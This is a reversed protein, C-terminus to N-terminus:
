KQSWKWVGKWEGDKPPNKELQECRWAWMKFAAGAEIFAQKARTFEGSAYLARAAEFELWKQSYPEKAYIELPQEKGKVAIVDLRKYGDPRGAFNFAKGTILDSVGYYKCLGQVRSATNVADGITTFDVFGGKSGIQCVFVDGTHLGTTFNIHPCGLKGAIGGASKELAMHVAEVMGVAARADEHRYLLADGIIKDVEGGAKRIAELAPPFIERLLFSVREPPLSECIGSFGSIDTFCVTATTKHGACDAVNGPALRAVKGGAYQRLCARMARAQRWLVFALVAFAYAVTVTLYIM